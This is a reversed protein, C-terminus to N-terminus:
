EGLLLALSDRLLVSCANTPAMNDFRLFQPRSVGKTIDTLRPHIVIVTGSFLNLWEAM